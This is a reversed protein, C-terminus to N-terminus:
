CHGQGNIGSTVVESLVVMNAFINAVLVTLYKEAIPIGVAIM